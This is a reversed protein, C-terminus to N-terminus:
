APRRRQRYKTPVQLGADRYLAAIRSRFSRPLIHARGIEYVSTSCSVETLRVFRVNGIRHRKFLAVVQETVICLSSARGKRDLVDVSFDSHWTKPNFFYGEFHPYQGSPYQHLRIDSKALTVPGRRGTVALGFYGPCDHGQKSVVRVPFTTWGVLNEGTLLDVLRSSIIVPHASSTWVIDGPTAAGMAWRVVVPKNVRAEGRALEFGREHLFSGRFPRTAVPDSLEYLRDFGPFDTM